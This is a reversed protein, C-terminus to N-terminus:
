IVRKKKKKKAKPIAGFPTAVMGSLSKPPLEGKSIDQVSGKKLTLGFYEAKQWSSLGNPNEVLEIEASQGPYVVWHKYRGWGNVVLPTHFLITHNTKNEYVRYVM